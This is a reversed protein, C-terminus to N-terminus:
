RAAAARGLRDAIALGLGDSEPPVALVVDLGLADAQRLAAYLVSAYGELSEPAALTVFSGGAPGDVLGELATRLAIVGVGRDAAALALVRDTLGDCPVM